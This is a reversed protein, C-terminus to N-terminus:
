GFWVVLRVNEDGCEAAAARMAAWVPAWHGHDPPAIMRTTLVVPRYEVGDLRVAGGPPWQSPALLMDGGFAEAAAEGLDPTAPVVDTLVPEGDGGPRWVGAWSWAPGDALPADWDVAAVEAWTAYTHGHQFDGVGTERVPESVDAPLGRDAFLPREVDCEGGMGFLCDWAARDRGLRFDLLDAEIVWGGGSRRSEIAGDIDTGM